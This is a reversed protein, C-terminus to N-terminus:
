AMEKKSKKSKIARTSQTKEQFLPQALLQRLRHVNSDDRAAEVLRWRGISRFPTEGYALFGASYKDAGAGAVLPGRLQRV